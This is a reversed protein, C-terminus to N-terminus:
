PLVCSALAIEESGFGLPPLQEGQLLYELPSLLPLLSLGYTVVLHSTATFSYPIMEVLNSSLLFLFTTLVLPFNEQRGGGHYHAVHYYSGCVKLKSDSSNRVPNSVRVTCHDTGNSLSVELLPKWYVLSVHNWHRLSYERAKCM